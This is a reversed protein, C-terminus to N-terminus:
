LQTLVHVLGAIELLSAVTVTVAAAPTIPGRPKGVNAVTAIQGLVILGIMVYMVIHALVLEEQPQPHLPVPLIRVQSRGDYGM